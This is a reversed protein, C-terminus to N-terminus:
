RRRRILALAGLGVLALTAPEPTWHIVANGPAAGDGAMVPANDGFQVTPVFYTWSISDYQAWENTNVEVYMWAEGEIAKHITFTCLTYSAAGPFDGPNNDYGGLGAALDPGDGFTETYGHVDFPDTYTFDSETMSLGPTAVFDNAWAYWPLDEAGYSVHMTIVYDGAAAGPDIELVQGAGGVGSPSTFWSQYDAGATSAVGAVLLAVLLGRVM